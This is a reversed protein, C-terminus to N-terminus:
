AQEYKNPKYPEIWIKSEKIVTTIRGRSPCKVNDPTPVLHYDLPYLGLVSRFMRCYVPCGGSGFTKWCFIDTSVKNNKSSLWKLRTRSKTVGYVAAWLAGGDKPNELCSCQLPNGNGEGLCSLSFHSHLRETM